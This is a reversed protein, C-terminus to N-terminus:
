RAAELLSSSFLWWQANALLRQCSRHQETSLDLYHRTCSKAQSSARGRSMPVGARGENARPVIIAALRPALIPAPGFTVGGRPSALSGPQQHFGDRDALLNPTSRPVTDGGRLHRWRRIRLLACRFSSPTASRSGLGVACHQPLSDPLKVSAISRDLLPVAANVKSSVLCCV